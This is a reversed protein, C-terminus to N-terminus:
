DEVIYKDVDVQYFDELAKKINPKSEVGYKSLLSKYVDGIDSVTGTSSLEDDIREIDKLVDGEFSEKIKKVGFKGIKPNTELDRADSVESPSGKKRKKRKKGYEGVDGILPFGIDGSGDTGFTGPLAGPQAAVVSGVGATTANAMADEFTKFRKLHKM